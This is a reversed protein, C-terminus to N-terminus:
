ERGKEFVTEQTIQLEDCLEQALWQLEVESLGESLSATQTGMHFELQAKVRTQGTSSDGQLHSAIYVLKQLPPYETSRAWRLRGCGYHKQWTTSTPSLVIKRQRLFLLEYTTYLALYIMFMGVLWLPSSLFLGLLFYMVSSWSVFELNQVAAWMMPALLANWIVAFLILILSGACGSDSQGRAPTTISVGNPLSHLLVQTDRPKQWRQLSSAPMWQQRDSRWIWRDSTQAWEGAPIARLADLAIPASAPRQQPRPQTLWQLWSKLVPNIALTPLQLQHQEDLLDGPHNGTLVEVVTAGLSYLDSAPEARGSFQELPMYGYSGVITQTGETAYAQVAGFDVLYVSGVSHGSRDGLLINSPKLDRHIVPPHHNHLYALVKLVGEAIQGVDEVSFCRGSKLWEQLSRAEIYTQVLAFGKWEPVDVDLFDVYQPIAPHSLEQLLAAEREFLKHEQWGTALSLSLLKLVLRQSTEHDRVLLTVRGQRQGLQREIIYRDLFIQDLTWM